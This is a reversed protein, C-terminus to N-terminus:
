PLLDGDPHIFPRELDFILGGREGFICEVQRRIVLTDFRHLIKPADLGMEAAWLQVQPLDGLGLPQKRQTSWVWNWPPVSALDDRQCPLEWEKIHACGSLAEAM